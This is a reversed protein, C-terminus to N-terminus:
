WELYCIPLTACQGLCSQEAHLPNLQPSQACDENSKSRVDDGYLRPSYQTHLTDESAIEQLTGFSHTPPSSYYPLIKEKAKKDVM